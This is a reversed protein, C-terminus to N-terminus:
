SPLDGTRAHATDDTGADDGEDADDDADDSYDDDDTFDADADDYGADDTGAEAIATPDATLESLDVPRGSADTITARELLGALAKNRRVDAVVANLNGSQLLQNAFEQPEMGYRQAQRVLYESLEAEGVSVDEQEAVADLLFQSRVAQEAIDRIEADFEERTQGQEQLYQAMRDDDHELQHIVDHERWETEAKVASDPLPFEVSELLQELLKDRAQAGQSLMNVRSVRERVDAQLEALTDFESALQAFDEDLAPLERTKVSNVTIDVQATSGAQEGNPLPATITKSEGAASGVLAEDLGDILDGKGVEYSLGRASGGDVEEGDVTAIMDISVFDGTQVPREVASLTAFRVRLGEIQEDVQEDTVEADDVTVTLASLDPVTIQPRVDVEATFAVHQGDSLETVEIEPQGVPFLGNETVAEGYAKPLAENVAEQLLPERGVRQEIVRAPVKGPRFGPVRLQTAFRKIAADITPQLEEFPLEIALRVRTPGLNEVTSKM